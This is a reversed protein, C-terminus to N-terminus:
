DLLDTLRRGVARVEDESLQVLEFVIDGSSLGHEMVHIQPSGSRLAVALAEASLRADRGDLRLHVRGFPLGTPDPVARAAVGALGDVRALFTAVKRDQERQWGDRDSREREDIAAMVGLIAEKSAKMARGIGKEQARVAEVLGRRGVVLGATPSALYKQGSVVVIDAGTGLLDPIRLDQAAGDVIAPVGRRHAASVAAALDVPEGRTLRSAVLLLCCVHTSALSRELDAVPCGAETGALEPTAGSLRVAQLISQGYNVAHGAPLVVRDAMGETVPLAAAREASRGTMAAAVALTIGAAACHTVTGAEAGTFRSISESARDQLEDLLFHHSLAEAVVAATEGSSRSVGIPTFPGRANIVRTLGYRRHLSM